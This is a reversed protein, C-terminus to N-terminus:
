FKFQFTMNTMNAISLSQQHQYNIKQMALEEIKEVKNVGTESYLAPNTYVSKTGVALGMLAGFVLGAGLNRAKERATGAKVLTIWGGILLGTAAGYAVNLPLLNKERNLSDALVERNFEMERSDIEPPIDGEDIYNEDMIQDGEQFKEEPTTGSEMSGYDDIFSENQWLSSGEDEFYQEQQALLKSAHSFTFLGTAIILYILFFIARSSASSTAKAHLM